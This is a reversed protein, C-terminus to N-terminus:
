MSKEGCPVLALERMESYAFRQTMCVSLLDKPRAAIRDTGCKVRAKGVKVENNNNISDKKRAAEYCLIPIARAWGGRM